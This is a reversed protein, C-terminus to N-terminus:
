WGTLRLRRDDDHRVAEGAGAIDRKRGEGLMERACADGREDEVVAAEAGAAACRALEDIRPLMEVIPACREGECARVRLYVAGANCEPACREAAAQREDGARAVAVNAGDYSM